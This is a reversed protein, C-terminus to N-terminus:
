VESRVFSLIIEADGMPDVCPSSFDSGVRAMLRRAADRVPEPKTDDAACANMLVIFSEEGAAGTTFRRHEALAIGAIRRASTRLRGEHTSERARLKENDIDTLWHAM